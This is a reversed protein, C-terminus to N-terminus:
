GNPEPHYDLRVLGDDATWGPGVGPSRSRM